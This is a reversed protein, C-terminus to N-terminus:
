ATRMQICCSPILALADLQILVQLLYDSEQVPCHVLILSLGEPVTSILAANKLSSLARADSGARESPILTCAAVRVM